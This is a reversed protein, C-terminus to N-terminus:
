LKITAKRIQRDMFTIANEYSSFHEEKNNMERLSKILIETEGNGRDEEKEKLRIKLEAIKNKLRTKEEIFRQKEAEVDRKLLSGADQAQEIIKKWEEREREFEQNIRDLEKKLDDAEKQRKDSM